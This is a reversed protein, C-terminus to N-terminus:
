ARENKPLPLADRMWGQASQLWNEYKPPLQDRERLVGVRLNITVHALGPDHPAAYLGSGCNPCFVNERPQGSEATQKIYVKPEGSIIKLDTAAAPANTRFASGSIQQCDTCHCIFVQDPDIKCEFKVYGCHCSGNVDM